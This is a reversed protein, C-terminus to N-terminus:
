VTFRLGPRMRVLDIKSNFQDTFSIAQNEDATRSFHMRKM